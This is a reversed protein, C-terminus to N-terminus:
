NEGRQQKEKRLETVMEDVRAIKEDVLQELQRQFRLGFPSVMPVPLGIDGPEHGMWTIPPALKFADREDLASAVKPGEAEITTETPEDGAAESATCASISVSLLMGACLHVIQMNTTPRSMQAVGAKEIGRPTAVMSYNLANGMHPELIM